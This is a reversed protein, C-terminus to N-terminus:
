VNAPVSEALGASSREHVNLVEIGILAGSQDFDLMVGPAVEETRSSKVDDAAFRVFMADAEPDYTTRIM